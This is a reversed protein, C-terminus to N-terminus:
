SCAIAEIEVLFDPNALGSVFVLTNPPFPEDFVLNRARRFGELHDRNTLYTTLKVINEFGGGFEQLIAQLNAYVQATQAEIDDKGVLQGAPNLAVQGAIYTTDGVRAVHSYGVGATSHVHQPHIIERKMPPREFTSSTRARASDEDEM